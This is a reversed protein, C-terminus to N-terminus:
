RFSDVNEQHRNKLNRIWAKLINLTMESLGEKIPNTGKGLGKSLTKGKSKIATFKFSKTEEAVQSKKIANESISKNRKSLEDQDIPMIDKYFLNLAFNISDIITWFFLFLIGWFWFVIFDLARILLDFKNLFPRQLIKKLKDFLILLYAFPAMIIWFCIFIVVASVGIMSYEIILLIKNLLKSKWYIVFPVTIFTLIGFPPPMSVISAYYKDYNYVQRLSIVNKLYLGNKVNNLISYTNSLIAILFNLLMISITILFLTLFTYGLRPSVDTLSNYITYDFNGLASSFLTSCSIYMDNYGSLEQFLLLGSGAFIFFVACFLVIFLILNIIMSTLIKVMPGFTRSVQLAIIFRAYQLAILLALVIKINFNADTNMRTIIISSKIEERYSSLDTSFDGYYKIIWILITIFSTIDLAM